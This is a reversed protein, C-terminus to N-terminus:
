TAGGLNRDKKWNLVPKKKLGVKSRLKNGIARKKESYEPEFQALFSEEAEQSQIECFEEFNIFAAKRGGKAKEKYKKQAKRSVKVDDKGTYGGGAIHGGTHNAIVIGADESLESERVHEFLEMFEKDL